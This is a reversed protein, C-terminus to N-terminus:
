STCSRLCPGFLASILTSTSFCHAFRRFLTERIGIRVPGISRASHAVLHREFGMVNKRDLAAPDPCASTLYALASTPFRASLTCAM